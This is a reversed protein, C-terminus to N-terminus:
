TCDEYPYTSSFHLETDALSPSGDETQSSKLRYIKWRPILFIAQWRRALGISMDVFFPGPLM